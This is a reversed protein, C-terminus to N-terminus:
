EGAPTSQPGSTEDRSVVEKPATKVAGVTADIKAIILANLDEFVLSLLSLGTEGMIAKTTEVAQKFVTEKEEETLKGDAAAEKLADVTNQNLATVVDYVTENLRKLYREITAAQSAQLEIKARQELYATLYKAIAIIAGSLSTILIPILTQILTNYNDETM